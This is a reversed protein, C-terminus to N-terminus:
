AWPPNFSQVTSNAADTGSITTRCDPMPTFVGHRDSMKNQVNNRWSERLKKAETLWAKHPFYFPCFRSGREGIRSPSLLSACLGKL